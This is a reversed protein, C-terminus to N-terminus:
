KRESLAQSYYYGWSPGTGAWELWDPETKAFDIRQKLILTFKRRGQQKIEVSVSAWGSRLFKEAKKPPVSFALNSEWNAAAAVSFGAFPALGLRLRDEDTFTESSHVAESPVSYSPYITVEEKSPVKIVIRIDEVLMPNAGINTLWLRPLVLYEEIASSDRDYLNWILVYPLGGVLKAPAFRTRWAIRAAVLFSLFAIAASVIAVHVSSIGWITQAATSM